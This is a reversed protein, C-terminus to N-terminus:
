RAAAAPAAAAPEAAPAAAPAATDSANEVEMAPEGALAKVQSAISCDHVGASDGLNGRPGRGVRMTLLAGTSKTRTALLRKGTQTDWLFVDVPADRRSGGRQVTLMFYSANATTLLNPLDRAVRLKLDSELVRLRAVSTEKTMAQRWPALLFNGQDYFGKLSNPAVGLCKGIADPALGRAAKAIGATDKGDETRIRLYAGERKHLSSIRLAPDVSQTPPDEKVAELTWTEVQKRFDTYKKVAPGVPGDLYAGISDRLIAAERRERLQVVVYFAGIGFLIGLIWKWPLKPAYAKAEDGADPTAPTLKGTAIREHSDRM